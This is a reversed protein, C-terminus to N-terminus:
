GRPTVAIKHSSSYRLLSSLEQVTQRLVPAHVLPPQLLQQLTHCAPPIYQQFHATHPSASLRGFAGLAQVLRQIGAMPLAQERIKDSATEQRYQALLHTRQQVDISVYPDYLLSALDYAAPGIRLGQFDILIPRNRRLLINSAQLDRHVLVLPQQELFRSVASLETRIRRQQSASLTLTRKVLQELFLDHEWRYLKRSFPPELDPAQQIPIRHLKAVLSIVHPYVERQRAPPLDQLALDGADELLLVHQDPADWLVTPVRIGQAALFRAITAYRGNEPRRDSRYRILIASRRTSALRVFSRDSGRAPLQIYAIDKCTARLLRCANRVVPDHRLCNASVVTADRISVPLHVNRGVISRVVTCGPAVSAGEWLVAQQWKTEPPIRSGAPRTAQWPPMHAATLPTVTQRQCYEAHAQLYRAPTGLDAWYAGPVSCGRVPHGAKSLSRYADIVSSPGNEPLHDLVLPAIIQIGCFTMTGPAGPTGVAFDRITGDARCAVTRPGREPDLWLIAPAQHQHFLSVLPAPNLDFSIDTNVVWCPSQGIFHAARRLAGGTGLIEPEYSFQIRPLSSAHALCWDLIEQPHHHLNLLIDHVGWSQVARMVHELNPVNWLPMMPKPLDASLPHMRSGFGAALLIAKTPFTRPQSAPSRTRSTPIQRAPHTRTSKM